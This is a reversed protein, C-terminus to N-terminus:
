TALCMYVQGFNLLHLTLKIEHTQFLVAYFMNVEHVNKYVAHCLVCTVIAM